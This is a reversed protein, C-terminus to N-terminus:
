RITAIIQDIVSKFCAQCRAGKSCFPCARTIHERDNAILSQLCAITQVRLFRVCAEKLDRCQHQDALALTSMVSNVTMHQSLYEECILKLRQLGYRDAAVFLHQMWMVGDLEYDEDPKDEEEEMGYMQLNPDLSDTYIYGLMANFVNAEMDQIQIATSMSGEKMPGFLEAMFVPSRAALVCRHAAITEGSVEFTVDAGVKTQFLHNYHQFIGSLPVEAVRSLDETVMIDCRITFSDNKLNKSQELACRRIFRGHGLGPYSKSFIFTGTERIYAPNQWVVQDVFSFECQVKVDKAINDDHLVIYLSIFDANLPVDGCPYYVICWRHGGVMFSRSSIGKGNPARKTHSYGEVVLLHYGSAAGADTVSTTSPCLEGNTLVSVGAFSM